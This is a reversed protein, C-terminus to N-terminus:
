PCFTGIRGPLDVSVTGNPGSVRIRVTYSATSIAGGTTADYVSLIFKTPGIGFAPSPFLFDGIPDSPLGRAEVVVASDSAVQLVSATLTTGSALPNGNQDSIQLYVNQGSRPQFCIESRPNLTDGIWYLIRAIGSFLTLASDMVAAGAEGLTQARVFAYGRGYTPHNPQQSAGLSTLTATARGGADTFSAATIVGATTSFYIATGPAVPNSYRDGAVVAVSNTAGIVNYGPFNLKGLGIGFHAQHPLGGHVVIRVPESQIIAGDSDRRLRAVIQITGAVTGSNITTAVRGAANTVASVPSVYAGGMDPPNISFSITDRHDIDIPFGLSDRAEYTIIATEVLGVGAVSLQNTSQGIFAISNAFGTGGGPGVGTVTDRVFIIDATKSKGPELLVPTTKDKYGSKTVTLTGQVPITDRLDVTFSFKGDTGTVKSDSFTATTLLVSASNVPQGTRSDSVEGNLTATTIPAGPGTGPGIPEVDGCSMYLLSLVPVVVVLLSVKSKM